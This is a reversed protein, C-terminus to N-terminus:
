EPPTSGSLVIRSFTAQAYNGDAKDTEWDGTGPCGAYWMSDGTRTSCQNYVGSKFYLSDGGYSYPNDLEDAGRVLSRTHNVTGLRDNHFTVYMTNRHVNITYSFEEGLAIGSEGPDETNDWGYGFVPVALDTRNPDDKALNREYTWFVSGAKHGPFKKYYIKIPENGFGFGSRTNDYKVAHIQGVVVSFAPRKTPDGANLSVQDVKLTAELKGGVAGFKDSGKRAEVAFNNGPDHTGIRTNTGRLMQRLESRTNTSNATTPAKNPAAFVLHGDDNVFFFDPHTYSQLDRVGIEDPKGDGNDDSPLTIKWHSLDFVSGPLPAAEEHGHAIAPTAISFALGLILAQNRHKRKTM